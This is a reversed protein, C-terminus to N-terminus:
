QFSRLVAEIEAKGMFVEVRKFREELHKLLERILFLESRFDLKLLAIFLLCYDYCCM